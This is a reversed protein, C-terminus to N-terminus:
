ALRRSWHRLGYIALLLFICYEFAILMVAKNVYLYISLLNVGIWLWWCEIRKQAMLWMALISAVTILSDLWPYDAAVTFTAPFWQHLRTIGLGTLLTGGVLALCLLQLFRPTSRVVAADHRASRWYYWGYVTAIFFWVQLLMDAYLQVQFFILFFGAENVIGTPWTWIHKRTALWVSLLGALTAVIEVYSLPYGAVDFAIRDISFWNM